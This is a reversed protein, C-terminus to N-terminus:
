VAGTTAYKGARNIVAMAMASIPQKGSGTEEYCKTVADLAKQQEQSITMYEIKRGKPRQHIVACLRYKGDIKQKALKKEMANVPRAPVKIATLDGDSDLILLNRINKEAKKAPLRKLFILPYRLKAKYIPMSIEMDHERYYPLRELVRPTTEPQLNIRRKGYTSIVSERCTEGLKIIPRVHKKLIDPLNGNKLAHETIHELAWFEKHNIEVVAPLFDGPSTELGVTAYYRKQNEMTAADARAIDYVSRKIASAYVKGDSDCYLMNIKSRSLRDNKVHVPMLFLVNKPKDRGFIQM